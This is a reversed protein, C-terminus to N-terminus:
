QISKIYIVSLNQGVVEGCARITKGAAEALEPPAILWLFDGTLMNRTYTFLVPPTITGILLRSFGSYVGPFARMSQRFDRASVVPVETIQGSENTAIAIFAGTSLRFQLPISGNPCTVAQLEGPQVTARILLAGALTIIVLTLGASTLLWGNGPLWAPGSAPFATWKQVVASLGICALLAPIALTAAYARMWLTNIPPAFPASLFIGLFAVLTLAYIEEHRNLWSFLLGIFFFLTAASQSIAILVPNGFQFYSFIGYLSSFFLDAWARISSLVLRFPNLGIEQLALRYIERSFEPENLGALENPHDLLVQRWDDSGVAQAYLTYSYRGFSVSQDVALSGRLGSNILWPLIAAVLFFIWIRKSLRGDKKFAIIGYVLMVPIIFFAGPRALLGLMSTFIGAAFSLAKKEQLGRLLFVTGLLGFPIGLQETLTTGVFLRYFVHTLYLMGTGVLPGFADRIQCASIFAALSNILALILLTTKLNEGTVWLLGSLLAPFLPRDGAFTGLLNGNLLQLADSYYGSADSWPLLGLVLNYNSEASEWLRLLPLTFIILTLALAISKWGWGTKKFAYLILGCGALVIFEDVVQFGKFNVQAPLPLIFVLLYLGLAAPFWFNPLFRAPLKM